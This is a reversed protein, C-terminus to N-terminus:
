GGGNERRRGQNSSRSCTEKPSKDPRKVKKGPRKHVNSGPPLLSYALEIKGRLPISSSARFSKRHKEGGKEGAKNCKEHFSHPLLIEEGSTVMIGSGLSRCGLAVVVPLRTELVTHTIGVWGGIILLPNGWWTLGQHSPM